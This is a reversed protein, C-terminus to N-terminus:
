VVSKRDLARLSDSLTGTTPDGEPGEEKVKDSVLIKSSMYTGSTLITSKSRILEDDFTRVGICVGDEVVIEKIMKQVVEVGPQNLVADRMAKSYEIKDSQVRLARVGPGKSSNLMRFQLATKDAIKGMVGGLAEIERVVIGKAPGGISPNCPMAAIRDINITFLGTKQGMKAAAIAAEVGAHGGGIVIVDFM